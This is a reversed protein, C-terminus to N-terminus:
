SRNSRILESTPLFVYRKKGAETRVTVEEFARTWQDRYSRFVPDMIMMVTMEPLHKSLVRHLTGTEKTLTEMYPNVNNGAAADWDIKKMSNVHVSSRGSMIDVLKEHIGSQHEQYLRKVKDFEGMLPSSPAHRRVFERIYPVLAIIFSLGQSSLALHKTTINRLGASRTAGAGLILQSSRSNFLKLSELLGPAIDQIM